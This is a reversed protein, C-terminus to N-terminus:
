DDPVDGQTSLIERWPAVQDMGSFWIRWWVCTAVGCTQLREPNRRKWTQVCIMYIYIDTYMRTYYIIHIIIDSIVSSDTVNAKPWIQMQLTQTHWHQMHCRGKRKSEIGDPPRPSPDLQHWRMGTCFRKDWGSYGGNFPKSGQVRPEPGHHPRLLIHSRQWKFRSPGLTWVRAPLLPDTSAM